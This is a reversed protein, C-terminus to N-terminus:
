RVLKSLLPAPAPPAPPAPRRQAQNQIADHRRYVGKCRSDPALAATVGVASESAGLMLYGDPRLSQALRTLVKSKQPANFYILVNRCFIVDFLGISRYDSLLNFTRFGINTKLQQRVRWGGPEKTFHVAARQSTLGRDVEYDSYFGERAKRLVPEAIDTAIIEYRRNGILARCEDLVMAISYPEQGTSCAASWIRITDHPERHANLHPLIHQALNEFPIKDRFFYTENITMANVVEDQLGPSRGAELVGVLQALGTMKERQIIPVIRSKVLYHKEDGLAIGSVRELYACFQNYAEIM